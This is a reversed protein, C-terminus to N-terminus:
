LFYLQIKNNLLYLSLPPYPKISPLISGFKDYRDFMFVAGDKCPIYFRHQTTINNQEIAKLLFISDFHTLSLISHFFFSGDQGVPTTINDTNPNNEFIKM